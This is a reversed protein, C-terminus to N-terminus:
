LAITKLWENVRSETLDAQNDEDLVLGVFHNGRQARSETFHYGDLPWEGVLEAGANEVAEALNDLADAFTDGYEKQDGLGFLAVKVGNLEADELDPLFYDWDGQVEGQNVTPAGMILLEYDSLSDAACDAVDICDAKLLEAMNEAIRRTNGTDSGYVVAISAM